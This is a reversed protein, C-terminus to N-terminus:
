SVKWAIHTCFGEINKKLRRALTKDVGLKHKHQPKKLFSPWM